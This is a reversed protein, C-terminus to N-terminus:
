TLCLTNQSTSVSAFQNIRSPKSSGYQGGDGKSELQVHRGLECGFNLVVNMTRALRNRCIVIDDTAGITRDASEPLCLPRNLFGSAHAFRAGTRSNVFLSSPRRV